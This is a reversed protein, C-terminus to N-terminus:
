GLGQLVDFSLVTVRYSRAKERVAVEFYLRVGPNVYGSVHGIYTATVGGAADLAEVRLRVNRTSFGWQNMIHGSVTPAGGREGAEWELKFHSDVGYIGYSQGGQPGAGGPAGQMAGGSACAQTLTLMAGLIATRMMAERM